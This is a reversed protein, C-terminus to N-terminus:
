HLQRGISQSRRRPAGSVDFEGGEVDIKIVDPPRPNRLRGTSRDHGGSLQNLGGRSRPQHRLRPHLPLRHLAKASGPEKGLMISFVQLNSFNNLKRSSPELSRPQPEFSFIRVQNDFRKAVEVSMLGVNAGSTTFSAAPALFRCCVDLVEADV